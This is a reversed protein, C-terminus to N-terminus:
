AVGGNLIKGMHDAHVAQAGRGSTAVTAAAHPKAKRPV